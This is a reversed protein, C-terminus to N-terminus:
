YETSTINDDQVIVILKTECSLVGAKMEDLSSYVMVGKISKLIVRFMEVNFCPNYHGVDDINSNSTERNGYEMKWSLHLANIHKNCYPNKRGSRTGLRYTTGCTSLVNKTAYDLM